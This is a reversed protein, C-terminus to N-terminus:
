PAADEITLYYPGRAVVGDVLQSQIDFRYYHGAVADFEITRRHTLNPGVAETILSVLADSGDYERIEWGLAHRDRNFKLEAKVRGSEPAVWNFYARDACQGLPEVLPLESDLVAALAPTTNGAYGYDPCRAGAQYAETEYVHLFYPIAETNQESRVVVLFDTAASVVRSMVLDRGDDGAEATELVTTGDLARLEMAMTAGAENNFFAAIEHTRGGVLSVRYWDEDEACAIPDVFAQGSTHTSGFRYALMAEDNREYRDACYPVAPESAGIRAWLDYATRMFLGDRPMVRLYVTEAAAATYALSKLRADNRVTELVTGSADSLELDIKGFIDNFEVEARLEEGAGLAVEFWHETEECLSLGNYAQAVLPEAQERTLGVNLPSDCTDAFELGINMTYYNRWDSTGNVAGDGDVFIRYDSGQGSNTVSITENDEFTNASAVPLSENARFVRMLLNGKAYTYLLDVNLTAGAPVFVKYHDEDNTGGNCILLDEYSGAAVTAAQTVSDNDEFPDPCLRDAPGELVGDDDTDAYLLLDYDMRAPQPATIQAYYTGSINAVFDVEAGETISVSSALPAGEGPTPSSPGWINISLEGEAKSFRIFAQADTGADLDFEFWDDNSDCIKLRNTVGPNPAVAANAAGTNGAFRDDACAGAAEVEVMMSFVNGDVVDNRTRARIFIYRSQRATYAAQRVDGSSASVVLIRQADRLELDIRGKSEDFMLTVDLTEGAEVWIKYWGDHYELSGNPATPLQGCVLLSEYTGAEIEAAAAQTINKGFRDPCAPNENGVGNLTTLLRYNVRSPFKEVVELYYTGDADATTSVVKSGGTSEDSDLVTSGDPGLLRLDLEGEASAFVIEWELTDGESLDISYFDSELECARLGVLGSQEGTLVGEETLEYATAVSGNEGIWDPECLPGDEVEVDLKYPVNLGQFLAASLYYTGGQTATYTLTDRLKGDGQPEVEVGARALVLCNRPGFLFIDLEGAAEAADYTTTVTLTQAPLLEVAYFDPDACVVLDDYSGPAIPSAAGCSQNPSYVDSCENPRQMWELAYTSNGVGSFPSVRLTMVQPQRTVFEIVQADARERASEIVQGEADYLDLAVGGRRRESTAAIRVVQNAAVDLTYFDPAEGCTSLGSYPTAAALAAPAAETAPDLEDSQCAGPASVDIALRYPANADLIAGRVQIFYPAGQAIGFELSEEGGDVGPPDGSLVVLEGNAQVLALDLNGISADYELTASVVQGSEVQVEFWEGGTNERCFFLDDDDGREFPLASAEVEFADQLSHNNGLGDDPCSPPRNVCLGVTPDEAEETTAGQTFDCLQSAACENDSVCGRCTRPQGACVQGVVNCQDVSECVPVCVLDECLFEQDSGPIACDSSTRCGAVCVSGQEQSCVENDRCDANARCGERCVGPEGDGPTECIESGRCDDDNQCPPREVCEGLVTNCIYDKGDDQQQGYAQCQTSNTCSGTFVCRSPQQSDDCRQIDPQCSTPTCGADECLRTRENCVQGEGCEDRSPECGARCLGGDCVAGAGCSESSECAAPACVGEQCFEDFACDFDTSCSLTEATCVGQSNCREGDSCDALSTCVEAQNDDDPGCASVLMAVLAFALLQLASFRYM